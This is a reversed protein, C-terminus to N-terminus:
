PIPGGRKAFSSRYLHYGTVVAGIMMGLCLLQGMSFGLFVLGLQHDPQRFYELFFRVFGYSFIFLPLFSGKPLKKKRIAWLLLFLVVGEFFAEFLQSPYRLGPSPSDPFYMGIPLNTQRGFLEGNIFNGLRGFSYGLPFIPSILDALLLFDTGRKRCFLLSAALAGLLGGHFSMGSIGIFRFGGEWAFPLIIQAPHDLYYGLNYFLVYGLRGGVLVGIFSFAILDKILNRDFPYRPETRIRYVALWYTALAALLYM